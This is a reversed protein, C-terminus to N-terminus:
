TGQVATLLVLLPGALISHISCLSARSPLSGQPFPSQSLGRQCRPTQTPDQIVLPLSSPPCEPIVRGSFPFTFDQFRSTRAQGDM